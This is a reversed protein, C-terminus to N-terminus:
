GVALGQAGVPEAAAGDATPVADVDVTRAAFRSGIVAGAGFVLLARRGAQHRGVGM